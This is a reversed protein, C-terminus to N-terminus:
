EDNEKFTDHIVGKLEELSIKKSDNLTLELVMARQISENSAIASLIMHAIYIPSGAGICLTKNGDNALVFLAMDGKEKNVDSANEKRVESVFPKLQDEIEKLFEM